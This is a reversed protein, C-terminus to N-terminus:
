HTSASRPSPGAISNPHILTGQGGGGEGGGGEEVGERTLDSPAHHEEKGGRRRGGCRSKQGSPPRHKAAMIEGEGEGEDGEPLSPLQSWSDGEPRTGRAHPVGAPTGRWEHVDDGEEGAGLLSQSESQPATACQATARQLVLSLRLRSRSKMCCCSMSSCIHLIDLQM